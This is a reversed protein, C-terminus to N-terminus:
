CKLGRFKVWLSMCIGFIKKKRDNQRIVELNMAIIEELKSLNIGSIEV